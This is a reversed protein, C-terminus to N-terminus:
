TWANCVLAWPGPLFSTGVTVWTTLSLAPVSGPDGSAGAPLTWSPVSWCSLLRRSRADPPQTETSGPAEPRAGPGLCPSAGFVSWWSSREPRLQPRACPWGGSEAGLGPCVSSVSGLPRGQQAEQSKVGRLFRSSIRLKSWLLQVLRKM